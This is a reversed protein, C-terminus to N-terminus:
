RSSMARGGKRDQPNSELTERVDERRVVFVPDAAPPYNDADLYYFFHDHYYGVHDLESTFESRDILINKAHEVRGTEIMYIAAQITDKLKENEVLASVLNNM